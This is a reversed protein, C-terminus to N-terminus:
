DNAGNKLEESRIHLLKGVKSAYERQVNVMTSRLESSL